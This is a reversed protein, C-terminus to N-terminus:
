ATAKQEQEILEHAANPFLAKLAAHSIRCETKTADMTFREDVVERLESVDACQPVGHEWCVDDIIRVHMDSEIDYYSNDHSFSALVRIKGIRLQTNFAYIEPIVANLRFEADVRPSAVIGRIKFILRIKVMPGDNSM